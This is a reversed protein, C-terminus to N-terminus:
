HLDAPLAGVPPRSVLFGTLGIYVSHTHTHTSVLLQLSAVQQSTAPYGVLCANVISIYDLPHLTEQGPPNRTWTLHFQDSGM